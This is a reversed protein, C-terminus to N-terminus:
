RYQLVYYILKVYELAVVQWGFPHWWWTAPAPMQRGPAVAYLGVEIGSGQFVRRLTWLARRSHYSSTVVLISRLGRARAYDRLAVAEEYTSSVSQPLVEIRDAAVGARRLEETALVVFSPNRREAEIWGSLMPDNTLLVLPARGERWLQAAADTREVYASSGSLVALADAHELEARVILAHAAGWALLSWAAVILVAICLRRWWLSRKEIRAIKFILAREPKGIL